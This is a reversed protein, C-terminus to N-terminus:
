SIFHSRLMNGLEAYLVIQMAAIIYFQNKTEM